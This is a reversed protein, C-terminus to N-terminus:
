NNHGQKVRISRPRHLRILPKHACLYQVHRGVYEGRWCDGAERHRDERVVVSGPSVSALPHLAAERSINHGGADVAPLRAARASCRRELEPLLLVYCISCYHLIHDRIPAMFTISTHWNSQCAPLIQPCNGWPVQVICV